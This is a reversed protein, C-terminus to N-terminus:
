QALSGWFLMPLAMRRDPVAVLGVVGACSGGGSIPSKPLAPLLYWAWSPSFVANCTILLTVSANM